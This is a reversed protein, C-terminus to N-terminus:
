SRADTVFNIAETRAGQRMQNELGYNKATREVNAQNEANNAADAKLAFNFNDIYDRYADQRGRRFGSNVVDGQYGGKNPNVIFM